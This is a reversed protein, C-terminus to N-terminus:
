LLLGLEGNSACRYMRWAALIHQTRDPWHFWSHEVTGTQVACSVRWLIVWHGHIPEKKWGRPQGNDCTLRWAVHPDQSATRLGRDAPAMVLVETVETVGAPNEPMFEQWLQEGTAVDLDFLRV